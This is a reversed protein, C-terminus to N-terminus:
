ELLFKFHPVDDDDYHIDNKAFVDFKTKRKIFNRDVKHWIQNLISIIKRHNSTETRKILQNCIRFM